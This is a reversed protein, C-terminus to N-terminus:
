NPRAISASVSPNPSQDTEWKALWASVFTSAARADGRQSRPLMNHVLRGFSWAGRKDNGSPRSPDFTTEVPSEIVSPDVIVLEKMADPMRELSAAQSTGPAEGDVLGGCAALLSLSVIAISSNMRMMHAANECM